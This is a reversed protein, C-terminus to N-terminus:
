PPVILFERISDLDAAVLKHFYKRNVLNNVVFTTHGTCIDRMVRLTQVPGVINTGRYHLNECIIQLCYASKIISVFGLVSFKTFVYLARFVSLSNFESKM